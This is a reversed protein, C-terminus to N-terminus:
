RPSHATAMESSMPEMAPETNLGRATVTMSSGDIVVDVRGGKAKLATRVIAERAQIEHHEVSPDRPHVARIIEVMQPDGRVERLIMLINRQEALRMSTHAVFIALPGLTLATMVNASTTSYLNLVVAAILMMAAIIGGFGFGGGYEGRARRWWPTRRLVPGPQTTIEGGDSMNDKGFKFFARGPVDEGLSYTIDRASIDGLAHRRDEAALVADVEDVEDALAAQAVPDNDILAAKIRFRALQDEVDPKNAADPGGGHTKLLRDLAQM